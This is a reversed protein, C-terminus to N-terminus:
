GQIADWRAEPMKWPGRWPARLFAQGGSQEILGLANVQPHRVLDNIEPFPVATGGLRNFVDLVKESKFRTLYREWLGHYESSLFGMGITTRGESM